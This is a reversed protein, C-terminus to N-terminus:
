DIKRWHVAQLDITPYKVKGIADVIRPMTFRDIITKHRHKAHRAGYGRGVTKVTHGMIAERLEEDVGGARLADAFNHRLSHLGKREGAIGLDALYGGFWKTWSKLGSPKAPSVAPFLWVDGGENNSEVLELFGLRVLEPHIPITRASGKTKLKKGADKDAYIAFTWHGDEQNVDATRLAALEGRREGTFLALLPLWFACDGRGAAPREGETFVPSAFLARLEEPDFPGGEPDDGELRLNTFPDTGDDRAWKVITQVGGFQKNISRNALRPADPHAKRWNVIQPLTMQSLEGRRPWPIDQLAALFKRAHDRTIRAPPIDGHLQIFLEIAREYEAVLGESRNFQKKWGELAARLGANDGTTGQCNSSASREATPELDTLPPTETPEGRYRRELAEHARVDARLVAMGLQRYSPSKPDLNIHSRDLLEALTEGVISIDGRGLAAKANELWWEL